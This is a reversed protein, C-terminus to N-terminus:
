AVLLNGAVRELDLRRELTYDQAVETISNILGWRTDGYKSQMLNLVKKAGEEPLQTQGRVRALFDDMDQQSLVKKKDGWVSKKQADAVWEVAHDALEDVRSLSAALRTQFEM